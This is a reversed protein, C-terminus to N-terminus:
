AVGAASLIIRRTGAVVCNLVTTTPSLGSLLGQLVLAPQGALSVCACWQRAAQCYGAAHKRGRTSGAGCFQQVASAFGADGISPVASVLAM